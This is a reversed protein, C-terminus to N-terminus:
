RLTTEIQKCSKPHCELPDILHWVNSQWQFLYDSDVPLSAILIATCHWGESYVDQVKFCKNAICHLTKM